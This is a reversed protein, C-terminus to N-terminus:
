LCGLRFQDDLELPLVLTSFGRAKAAACMAARAAADTRYRAKYEAHLVPKGAKVFPALADCESFEFCQENVAFDVYSVLQPIQDLDNKLGVALGRAHAENAIRRNFALQDTATLKFGTPNSYGDVNDPEVGDCGKQQALDLRRLMITLVNAARIDLWRENPWGDLPKGCVGPAFAGNDPRWGEYSGASFYCIVKRGAAHLKAITAASTDFLDVDYLAVDYSLNPKGKLQWQWSVGVAPRYWTPHATEAAAPATAPRLPAVKANPQASPAEPAACALLCSLGLVFIAAARM